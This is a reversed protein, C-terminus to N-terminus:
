QKDGSAFRVPVVFALGADPVDAPPAPFPSARKVLAQAEADLVASGSSKVVRSDVLRGQRDISFRLSVVGTAGGAQKPYRQFRALRTVLAQQWNAIAVSPRTSPAETPPKDPVRPQPTTQQALAVTDFLTIMAVASVVAAVSQKCKSSM